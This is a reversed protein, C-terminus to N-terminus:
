RLVTIRQTVERGPYTLRAVYMGQAVRKGTDDKGDWVAVTPETSTWGSYVERVLHGRLDFLTLKANSDSPLSFRFETQGQTPNPSPALLIGKALTEPAASQVPNWNYTVTTGQVVDTIIIQSYSFSLSVYPTGGGSSESAGVLNANILQWRILPMTMKAFPDEALEFTVDSFTEGSAQAQLLRVISRDWEKTVTVESTQAAGSPQGNPGVPVTVGHQLSSLNIWNAYGALTSTGPINGQASGVARMVLYQAALAGCPLALLTLVLPLVFLSRRCIRM